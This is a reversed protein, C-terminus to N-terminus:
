SACIVLHIASGAAKRAAAANVTFASAAGFVVFALGAAFDLAGFVVVLAGDVFPEEVFDVDGFVLLLAALAFAGLDVVVVALLLPEDFFPVGAPTVVCVSTSVGGGVDGVAHSGVLATESFSIDL